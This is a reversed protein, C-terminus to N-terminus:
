DLGAVMRLRARSNKGDGILQRLKSTKQSLNKGGKLVGSLFSRAIELNKAM